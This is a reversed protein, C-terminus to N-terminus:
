GYVIQKYIAVQIIVDVSLADMLLMEKEKADEVIENRITNNMEIGSGNEIASIAGWIKEANITYNEDEYFDLVNVDGNEEYSIHAWYGCAYTITDKIDQIFQEKKSPM